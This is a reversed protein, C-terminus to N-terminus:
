FNAWSPGSQGAHYEWHWPEKQVARIFGYTRGNKLMWNYVSSSKCASPASSGTQGGCDTNIDVAIGQGHNSSGPHAALNGGNCKKTQYCNWFYQQRALTRFGSAIKIIVGEKAAAEAMRAFACATPQLRLTNDALTDPLGIKSTDVMHQAAIPVTQYQVGGNGAKTTTALGAYVPCAGIDITPAPTPPASSAPTCCYNVGPCLGTVIKGTTCSAKPICQGSLGGCTTAGSRLVAGRAFSSSGATPSTFAPRARPDGKPVTIIRHKPMMATSKLVRPSVLKKGKRPPRNVEVEFENAMAAGVLVAAILLVKLATM